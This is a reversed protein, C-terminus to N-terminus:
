EGLRDRITLLDQLSKRIGDRMALTYEDWGWVREVDIMALNKIADAVNKRAEELKEDAPTTVMM